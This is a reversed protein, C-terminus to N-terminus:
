DLWKCTIPHTALVILEMPIIGNRCKRQQSILEKILILIVPFALITALARLSDVSSPELLHLIVLSPVRTNLFHAKELSSPDRSGGLDFLSLTTLQSGPTQSTEGPIISKPVWHQDRRKISWAHLLLKLWTSRIPLNLNNIGHIAETETAMAIKNISENLMCLISQSLSHSVSM